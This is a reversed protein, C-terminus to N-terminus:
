EGERRQNKHHTIHCSRCWWIVDLPKNYDEHHGDPKCEKGCKVCHRPRILKGNKLAEQVISIAKRKLPNTEKRRKDDEAKRERNKQYYRQHYESVDEQHESRYRKDRAKIEKKHSQRYQKNIANSCLKCWYQLGDSTSKNESFDTLMKKQGCKSCLKSM